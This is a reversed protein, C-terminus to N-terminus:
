INKERKQECRVITVGKAFVLHRATVQLNHVNSAETLKIVDDVIRWNKRAM